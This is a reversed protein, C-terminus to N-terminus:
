DWGLVVTSAEDVGDIGYRVTKHTTALCPSVPVSEVAMVALWLPIEVAFYYSCFLYYTMSSQVSM